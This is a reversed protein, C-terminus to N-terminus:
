SRGRLFAVVAGAVEARVDAPRRGSAALLKRNVVFGHGAGPIWRLEGGAEVVVPTLLRPPAFPDRDGSVFLMPVRIRTLHRVREPPVEPKRPPKLPYALLVAGVVGCGVAEPGGLFMSVMRGGFSRGGLFLPGPALEPVAEAVARIARIAVAPRDPRRKGAEAAPLNFRLMRVGRAALAASLRVLGPTEMSGGAGHTLALLPAPGSGVSAPAHLRGSVVGGDGSPLRLAEVAPHATM